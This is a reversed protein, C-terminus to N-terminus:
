KLRILALMVGGSLAMQPVTFYVGQTFFGIIFAMLLSLKETKEMTLNHLSLIFPKLYRILMITCIVGIFLGFHYYLYLWSSDQTSLIKNNFHTSIKNVHNRWGIGEPLLFFEAETFPVYLSKTREGEYQNSSNIAGYMREIQVMGGESSMYFDYAKPVISFLSFALVFLVLVKVSRQWLTVSRSLILPLAVIITQILFFVINIRAFSFTAYYAGIALLLFQLIYKRENYYLFNQIVLFHMPLGLTRQTDEINISLRQYSYFFGFAIVPWLLKKLFSKKQAYSWDHRLFLLCSFIFIYCARFDAYINSYFNGMRVSGVPTLMGIIAMFFLLCIAIISWKSKLTKAFPIKYSNYKNILIIGILIFPEIVNGIMPFLLTTLPSVGFSLLLFGFAQLIRKILM